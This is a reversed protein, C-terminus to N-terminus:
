YVEEKYCKECFVKEEPFGKTARDKSFSSTIKTGCKSCDRQFFQRPRRLSQRKKRRCDFCKRPLPLKNRLYFELEAEIIKYNKSCESCALIANLLDKKSLNSESPKESNESVKAEKFSKSGNFSDGGGELELSDDPLDEASVTEKGFTGPLNDKWNWGKALVEERNMPYWINATTENYGNKSDKIPFFEGWEDDKKMREVIKPLLDFYEEKSYQTNLICYQKNKLGFCGFCNKSTYCDICYMLDSVQWLCLYCFQCNYSNTGTMACQYALELGIGYQYIDQCNKVGLQLQACYRSDEIDSCDFCDECDKARYLYDGTSNEIMHTQLAKFGYSKQLKQFSEWGILSHKYSSSTFQSVQKEYEEKTLQQNMFCYKKNRLGVCLFCHQCGICDRVFRCDSCNFCDQCWALNYCKNVDVCEYCLESEHCYHVDVCSKAKKVGYGYYCDELFTAHFVLYSNKAQGAQHIYESNENSIDTSVCCHPVKLELEKIQEFISRNLDLAPKAVGGSESSTAAALNYNTGDYEDSWWCDICYVIQPRDKDLESIISKKCKDCNRQYLVGENSFAMRQQERCPPCFSPPPIELDSLKFGKVNKSENEPSCNEGESIKGNATVSKELGEMQAVIGIKKIFNLEKDSIEFNKSCNKCTKTLM